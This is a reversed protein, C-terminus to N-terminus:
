AHSCETLPLAFSVETGGNIESNIWIRGGHSEIIQKAIALGLGTGGQQRSRAKDVRYFREFIRPLDEAPIGLGTDKVSVALEDVSNTIAVTIVGGAPTYKAANSLINVMVQEIQDRNAMVAPIDEPLSTILKLQNHRATVLMRDVVEIVLEDLFVKQKRGQDQQHDLRSLTLLDRVLRHMRDAEEQVTTLFKGANEHDEIAGDLLTEVYNIISTLPTRLEHSVNAVFDRRMQDLRSQETMDQLVVVVGSLQNDSSRFPALYAQLVLGLDALNLEKVAPASSILERAEGLRLRELVQASEVEGPLLLLERAKPNIHIIKGAKDLAIVGNSMYSLIAELKSKENAMESLSERLQSTLYNFVEGLRGIEDRSKVRINTDFDGSALLEAKSTIEQIPKTITRALVLGLVTVVLIALATAKLLTLQIDRLVDYIASLPQVLYVAEVAKGHSRGSARIAMTLYKIGGQYSVGMSLELDPDLLLDQVPKHEVLNSNPEIGLDAKGYVAIVNMRNDLLILNAGESEEFGLIVVADRLTQDDLFLGENRLLIGKRQLDDSAINLYYGEWQRLLYVSILIMALLILLIYIFVLRWQISRM